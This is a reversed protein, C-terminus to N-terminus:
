LEPVQHTESGEHMHTRTDSEQVGVLDELARATAAPDYTQYHVHLVDGESIGSSGSAGSAHKDISLIVCTPPLLIDRIEKGVVFARPRVTLYTDVIQATKGEQHAHEVKSEIVTDSFAPVSATEIVLFSITVGIAIPLINSLGCLAEAAFVIATIPTRSSASLFSAMGIVVLIIYYEQSLGGMATLGKATLAGLIAGFTLTPVFVGGSVGVNNAVIMLIARVCFAIILLYWVGGGHLLSEILSHGSGICRDTSFGILAVAVFVAMVKCAFPLKSLETQIWKGVTRYTKTFFVACIGCILGVVVATWLFKMPLVSRISFSFMSASIGALECLFRTTVTGAVVTMSAVMFIMPSFRRHAEELAFFIGSIPAGTACAFGACAGGTMMYRDWARHRKAFISITGRGVATGMQVSPGENGLPMGGLYSLSASVYLMFISKVWHFDILGRLVAVSTPIGGGRCTPAQCLLWAACLGLVAAGVCLLPLFLPESRVFAYADMSFSVIYSTTLKFLFILGGTFVGTLISFLLCPILINQIYTFHKTKM